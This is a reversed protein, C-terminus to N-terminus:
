AGLNNRRAELAFNHLLHCVGGFTILSVAELVDRVTQVSSPELAWDYAAFDFCLFGLGMAAGVYLYSVGSQLNDGTLSIALGSGFVGVGVIWTLWAILQSADPGSHFEVLAGFLCAGGIACLVIAALQKM